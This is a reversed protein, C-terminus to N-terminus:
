FTLLLSVVVFLSLIVWQIKNVKQIEYTRRLGCAGGPCHQSQNKSFTNYLKCGVCIGFVAELYLFALCTMCVYINVDGRYEFLVIVCFMVTSMFLGIAWAWKKQPAGTFEPEQNKIVIRGLIMSPALSPNMFIRIFFDIMFLTIFWKMVALDELYLMNAFAISAFLLLIGAAARVERENLVRVEYGEVVEGFHFQQAIM